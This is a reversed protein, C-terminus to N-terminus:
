DVRRKTMVGITQYGINNLWREASANNIGASPSIMVEIAGNDKAWDYMREALMTGVSSKRWQEKVYIWYEHAMLENSFYYPTLRAFVSGVYEGENEAVLFLYQSPKVIALTFLERIKDESFPVFALASQLHLEHCMNMMAPADSPTFKRIELKSM